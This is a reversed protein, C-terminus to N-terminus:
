ILQVLDNTNILKGKDILQQVVNPQNTLAAHHLPSLKAYYDKLNVNIEPQALLIDVVTKQRNKIAM